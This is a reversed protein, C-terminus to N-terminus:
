LKQIRRNLMKKIEKPICFDYRHTIFLTIFVSGAEFTTVLGIVRVLLIGAGLMRNVPGAGVGLVTDVLGIKNRLIIPSWNRM